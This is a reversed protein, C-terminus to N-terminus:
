KKFLSCQTRESAICICDAHQLALWYFRSHEMHTNFCIISEMKLSVFSILCGEEKDIHKRTEIPLLIINSYKNTILLVMQRHKNHTAQSLLGINTTEATSLEGM